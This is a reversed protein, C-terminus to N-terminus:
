GGVGCGGTVGHCLAVNGASLVEAFNVFMRTAIQAQEAMGLSDLAGWRNNSVTGVVGVELGYAGSCCDAADKAFVEGEAAVCM